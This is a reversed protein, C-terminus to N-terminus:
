EVVEPYFFGSLKEGWAQFKEAFSNMWSNESTKERSRIKRRRHKKHDVRQWNVIIEHKFTNAQQTQKNRHTSYIKM